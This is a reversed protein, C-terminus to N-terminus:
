KERKNGCEECFSGKNGEHGCKMCTWTTAVQAVEERKTGCEECFKGKNGQHNCKPCTWGGNIDKITDNIPEAITKAVQVGVGVGITAKAIESVFGSANGGSAENSAAAQGVIRATEKSYDGGMNHLVEARANGENKIKEAQAESEIKIIDADAKAGIIKIDAETEAEVKKRAKKAQAEEYMIREQQVKLFREAHQMKLRAFNPDDDPTSINTVYFEPIFLGYTGFTKNLEGRIYDSIEDLHEDVELIDINNERIAKPLFSKVKTMVLARFKGSVSSTSYGSGGIIDERKLGLETGVLKLLIKGSDEVRINFEGFAGIEIHLGSAPDYMRVKSDTGWRIGMITALNIFYVEAHFQSPGNAVKGFFGKMLPLSETNLTYKGAGFRDMAKGNRFFIAEQSEHVILQTGENFDEVPHKYVFSENDGEYKIVSYIAM